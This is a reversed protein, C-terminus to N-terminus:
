NVRAAIYTDLSLACMLFNHLQMQRRPSTESGPLCNPSLLVPYLNGEASPVRGLTRKGNRKVEGLRAAGRGGLGTWVM